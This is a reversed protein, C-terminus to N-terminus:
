EVSVGTESSPTEYMLDLEAAIRLNRCRPCEVPKHLMQKLAVSRRDISVIRGCSCFIKSIDAPNEDFYMCEQMNKSSVYSDQANIVSRNVGGLRNAQPLCGCEVESECLRVVGM